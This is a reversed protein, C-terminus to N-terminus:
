LVKNLKDKLNYALSRLFTSFFVYFPMFSSSNGPIPYFIGIPSASQWSNVMSIVPIHLNFAENTWLSAADLSFFVSPLFFNKLQYHCQILRSNSIFGPFWYCVMFTSKLFFYDIGATNEEDWGPFMWLSRLSQLLSLNNIFSLARRFLFSVKLLDFVSYGGRSGVLVPSLQLCWLYHFKGM